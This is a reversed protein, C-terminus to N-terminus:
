FEKRKIGLILVPAIFYCSELFIFIWWFVCTISWQTSEKYFAVASVFFIAFKVMWFNAVFEFCVAKSSQIFFATVIFLTLEQMGIGTSVRQFISCALSWVASEEMQSSCFYDWPSREGGIFIELIFSGVEFWFISKICEFFLVIFTALFSGLVLNKV